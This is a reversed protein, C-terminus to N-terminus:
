QDNEKGKGGEEDGATLDDGKAVAQAAARARAKSQAKLQEKTPLRGGLNGSDTNIGADEASARVPKLDLTVRSGVLNGTEYAHRLSPSGEIDETTLEVKQGRKFIQGSKTEIRRAKVEFTAMIDGM